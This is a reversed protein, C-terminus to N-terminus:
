GQASTPDRERAYDFPGTRVPHGRAIRDEGSTGGAPAAPHLLRKPQGM